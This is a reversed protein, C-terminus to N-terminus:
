QGTQRETVDGAKRLRRRAPAPPEAQPLSDSPEPEEEGPESPEAEPGALDEEGAFEEREALSAAEAAEAEAETFGFEGASAGAVAEEARTAIRQLEADTTDRTLSRQEDARIPVEELSDFFARVVGDVPEQWTPAIGHPDCFPMM